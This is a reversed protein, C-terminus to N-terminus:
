KWIRDVVKLTRFAGATSSVNNIHIVKKKNKKIIKCANKNVKKINM